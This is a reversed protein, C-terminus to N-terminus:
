CTLVIRTAESRALTSEMVDVAVSQWVKYLLVSVAVQLNCQIRAAAKGCRLLQM